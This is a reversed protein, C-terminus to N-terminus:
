WKLRDLLRTPHTLRTFDLSEFTNLFGDYRVMKTPRTPHTLRTFDLSEFTNLFGDGPVMKATDYWYQLTRQM